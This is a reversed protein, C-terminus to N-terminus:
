EDPADEKPQFIELMRDFDATTNVHREELKKVAKRSAMLALTGAWAMFTNRKTVQEPTLVSADLSGFRLTARKARNSIQRATSEGQSLIEDPELCKICDGGPMRKWVVGHRECYKIASQLYGYGPHHPRCVKGCIAALQMDTLIDGPQGKEMRQILLSTAVAYQGVSRFRRPEQQEM